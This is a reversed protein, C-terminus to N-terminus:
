SRSGAISKRLLLQYPAFGQATFFQRAGSNAAWHSLAIEELEEGHAWAEAHAMLATAIGQRRADPSVSLHHVYLRRRAPSFPSAPRTQLECWIYGVPEGGIEAISISALRPALLAKLGDADVTEVFDDPYLEAHVRQVVQNLCVLTGLDAETAVRIIITM